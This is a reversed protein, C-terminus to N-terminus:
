AQAPASASRPSWWGYFVVMYPTGSASKPRASVRSPSLVVLAGTSAAHVLQALLVSGTNVYLWSILVRIATMAFAFALFYELWWPGHPTATGPYDIVPIHWASWLLGLLIASAFASHTRCFAPFAFGTWGTEEFFGAILGFALGALFLNPKYIPSAMASLM